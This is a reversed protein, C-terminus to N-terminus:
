GEYEMMDEQIYKTLVCITRGTWVICRLTSRGWQGEGRYRSVLMKREGERYGLGVPLQLSVNRCCCMAQSV